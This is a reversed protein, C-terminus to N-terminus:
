LLLFKKAIFYINTASAVYNNLKKYDGNICEYIGQELFYNYVDIFTKEALHKDKQMITDIFWGSATAWFAGNQYEGPSVELLCRQWYENKPLHRIQGAQVIGDYNELM